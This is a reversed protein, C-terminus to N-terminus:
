IFYMDYEMKGRKKDYYFFLMYFDNNYKFYCLQTLFLQMFHYTMIKKGFAAWQDIMKDEYTRMCISKCITECVCEENNWIRPILVNINKQNESVTRSV